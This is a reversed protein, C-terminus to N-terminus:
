PVIKGGCWFVTIATPNPVVLFQKRDAPLPAKIDPCTVTTVQAELTPRLATSALALSVYVVLGRKITM